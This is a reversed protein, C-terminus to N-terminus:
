KVVVKGISTVYIGKDLSIKKTEGPRVNAKTVISGQLNYISISMEEDASVLIGGDVSVIKPTDVEVGKVRINQAYFRITREVPDYEVDVSKANDSNVNFTSNMGDTRIATEEFPNEQSVETFDRTQAGNFGSISRTPSFGNKDGISSGITLTSESAPIEFSGTYKGNEDLTMVNPKMPDYSSITPYVTGKAIDSVVVYYGDFASENFLTMEKAEKDLMMYVSGNSKMNFNWENEGSPNYSAKAMGNIDFDLRKPPQRNYKRKAKSAETAPGVHLTYDQAELNGFQGTVATKKEAVPTFMTEDAGGNEGNITTAVAPIIDESSVNFTMTMNKVDIQMDVYGNIVEPLTYIYESPMVPKAVGYDGKENYLNMDPIDVSWENSFNKGGLPIKHNEINLFFRPLVGFTDTYSKLKFVGTGAESEQANVIDSDQNDNTFCIETVADLNFFQKGKNIMLNGGPWNKLEFSHGIILWYNESNNFEKYNSNSFDIVYSDKSSDTNHPASFDCFRLIHDGKALYIPQVLTGNYNYLRDNFEKANSFCPTPEEDIAVVMSKYNLDSIYIQNDVISMRFDDDKGIGIDKASISEDGEETINRVIYGFESMDTESPLTYIISKKWNSDTVRYEPINKLLTIDDFSSTNLYLRDEPNATNEFKRYENNFYAWMSKAQGAHPFETQSITLLGLNLDVKFYLKKNNYQYIEWDGKGQTAIYQSPANDAYIKITDAGDSSSGFSPFSNEEGWDGLETYFRFTNTGSPFQFEGYYTGDTTRYLPMSGDSINWNNPTGILYICDWNSYNDSELGTSIASITIKSTSADYIINANLDGYFNTNDGMVWHKANDIGKGTQTPLIVKPQTTLLKGDDAPIVVDADAETEGLSNLIYFDFHQNPFTIDASYKSDGIPSMVKLTRNLFKANDKTLPIFTDGPIVLHPGMLKEEMDPVYAEGKATLPANPSFSILGTNCDIEITVDSTPPRNFGINGGDLKALMYYKGDPGIKCGYEPDSGINYGWNPITIKFQHQNYAPANNVKYVGTYIGESKKTLPWGTTTDWENFAGVIQSKEIQSADLAVPTFDSLLSTYKIKNSSTFTIFGNNWNSKEFYEDRSHFLTGENTETRIAGSKLYLVKIEGGYISDTQFDYIRFKLPKNDLVMKQGNSTSVYNAVTELTPPEQGEAIAYKAAQPICYVKEKNFDVRVLLKENKINPVSCVFACALNTFEFYELGDEYVSSRGLESMIVQQTPINCDRKPMIRNFCFPSIDSIRKELLDTYFSFYFPMATNGEPPTLMIEFVGDSVKTLEPIKDANEKLPEPWYNGDWVLYLKEPNITTADSIGLGIFIALLTLIQRFSKAITM